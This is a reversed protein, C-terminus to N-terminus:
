RFLTALAAGPDAARMLAEGVLFAQVGASRLRAVDAPALIGSEAVVLREPPVRPLLDLTTELRVEFSKLDRNNIGILPAALKLARALEEANHVEVLVAMGFSAATAELAALGADDLAAVILLIADAGLARAEAIQYTDVIFDKRLLPLRCAARVARLHEPAGLFFERDTLVSICAAGGIEYRRAIAAPEYIPRLVGRSPSAKKMEAIVAPEGAAIKARLAGAFDRPPPQRRGEEVLLALPRTQRAAAVEKAKAALIRALIDSM